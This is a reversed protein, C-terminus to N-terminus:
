GAAGEGTRRHSSNAAGQSHLRVSHHSQQGASAAAEVRRRRVPVRQGGAEPLGQFRDLPPRAVQHARRRRPARPQHGQVSAHVHNPSRRARRQRARGAPSHRAVLGPRAARSQQPNWKPDSCRTRDCPYSTASHPRQDQGSTGLRAKRPRTLRRTWRTPTAGYHHRGAGLEGVRARICRPEIPSLSGFLSSGLGRRGCRDGVQTYCMQPEDLLGKRRVNTPDAWSQTL